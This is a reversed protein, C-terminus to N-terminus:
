YEQRAIQALQQSHYAGSQWASRLLLLRKLIQLSDAGLKVTTQASRELKVPVRRIALNYKLAIYLLEIDGAFGDDKILPFIVNAVDGRIAKLGCQTDFIEGTLFLRVLTRCCISFFRRIREKGTRDISESLTRDGIALHFQLDNVLHVLYPIASVEYPLESDTFIRCTGSAALMGTKIAGFKGRNMEHQFLRLHADKFESIVKVTNDLSADDILIIEFSSFHKPLYSLLIDLTSRVISGSNYTPLILSLNM